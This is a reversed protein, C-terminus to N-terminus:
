SPPFSLIFYIPFSSPSSSSLVSLYASYVSVFFLFPFLLFFMGSPFFHIKLVDLSRLILLLQLSPISLLCSLLLSYAFSLHFLNPPFYSSLSLVCMADSFATPCFFFFFILSSFYQTPPMSSFVSLDMQSIGNKNIIKSSYSIPGNM